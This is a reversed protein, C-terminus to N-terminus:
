LVAWAPIESGGHWAKPSPTPISDPDWLSLDRDQAQGTVGPVAPTPPLLMGGAVLLQPGWRVQSVLPARFVSSM